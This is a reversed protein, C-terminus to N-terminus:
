GDLADRKWIEQGRPRHNADSALLDEIQAELWELRRMIAAADDYKLKTEMMSRSTKILTDMVKILEMQDKAAPPVEAMLTGILDLASAPNVGSEAIQRVKDLFEPSVVVGTREPSDKDPCDKPGAITKTVAM